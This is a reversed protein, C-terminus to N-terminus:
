VSPLAILPDANKQEAEAKLNNLRKNLESFVEDLTSYFWEPLEGSKIADLTIAQGGISVDGEVSELLEISRESGEKQLKELFATESETREEKKYLEVARKIDIQIKLKENRKLQRFSLVLEKGNIEIITKHNPVKVKITEM